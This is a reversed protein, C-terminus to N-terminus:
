YENGSIQKKQLDSCKWFNPDKYFNLCSVMSRLGAPMENNSSSKETSGPSGENFSSEAQILYFWIM